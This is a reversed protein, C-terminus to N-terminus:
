PTPTSTRRLVTGHKDLKLKAAKLAEKLAEPSYDLTKAYRGAVTAFAKNQAPGVKRAADLTENACSAVLRLWDAVSDPSRVTRDPALPQMIEQMSDDLGWHKAVAMALSQLDVGLVAMAAANESLGPTIPEGPNLAPQPQMLLLIQQAEDPFHYLALLKGLHQLQAALLASEADLGAPVLGEALHGALCALKLGQDLGRAGEENLPGPWARMASAARRLGSVGVLQLARRVTTVAAEREAGYHVSNVMRLLEFSLATDELIVDALDDIRQNEMRAVQVVRQALGPRAPLHGVSHLRDVLLAIAGGGEKAEVKRWGSLARDFSRASLYRRKEHRDTARNVIARLAEPVPHPLTWPLRVIEQAMVRHIANPLDPEDLAPSNALLGHLLLGTALVDRDSAARHERLVSPDLANGDAVAGGQVACALGWVAIRGQKDLMLSHLGLDGHAVAADHAYALGELLDLCWTAVDLPPPPKRGNLTETLVTFGQLRDYVQFPWHEHHGIEIPALLRPHTLRSARRAADTWADLGARNGPPKRPMMLMVDMKARPDRALWAMTASSRGLLQTLLFRGFPRAAPAPAPAATAVGPLAAARSNGFESTQTNKAMWPTRTTVPLSLRRAIRLNFECIQDL